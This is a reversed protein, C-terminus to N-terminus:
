ETNPVVSRAGDLSIQGRGGEPAPQSEQSLSQRGAKSHRPPRISACSPVEVWGKPTYGVCIRNIDHCHGCTETFRQKMPGDPWEKATYQAHAPLAASTLL